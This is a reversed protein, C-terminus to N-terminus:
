QVSRGTCQRDPANRSGVGRDGFLAVDAIFTAIGGATVFLIFFWFEARNARGSFNAYNRFCSSVAEGFGTVATADGTINSSYSAATVGAPHSRGAFPSQALPVWGAMGQSWILTTATIAGTQILARLQDATFPGKQESGAGYYWTSFDVETM